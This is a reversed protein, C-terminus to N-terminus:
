PNRIDDTREELTLCIGNIVDLIDDDSVGAKAAKHVAAIMENAFTELPTEDM